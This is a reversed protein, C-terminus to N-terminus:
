HLDMSKSVSEGGALEAADGALEALLGAPDEEGFWRGGLLSFVTSFQSSAASLEAADAAEAPLVPVGAVVGSSSSFEISLSAKTGVDLGLFFYFWIGRDIM